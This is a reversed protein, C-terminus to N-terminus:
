EAKVNLIQKDSLNAAHAKADGQQAFNQGDATVWVEPLKYRKCAELGASKLASSGEPKAKPKAEGKGKAETKGKAKPETKPAAQVASEVPQGSQAEPATINKTEDSM